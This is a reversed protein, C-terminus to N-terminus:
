EQVKLGRKQAEQKGYKVWHTVDSAQIKGPHPIEIGLQTYQDWVDDSPQPIHRMDSTLLNYIYIARGSWNHLKILVHVKGSNPEKGALRAAKKKSTSGRGLQETPWPDFTM